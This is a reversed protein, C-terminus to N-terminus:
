PREDVYRLCPFRDDVERLTMDLLDLWVDIPIGLHLHRDVVQRGLDYALDEVDLELYIPTWYWDGHDRRIIRSM